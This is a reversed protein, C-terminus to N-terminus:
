INAAPRLKGGELLPAPVALGAQLESSMNVPAARNPRSRTARQSEAVSNAHVKSKKPSSDKKGAKKLAKLAPIAEKRALKAAKKAQKFAKRAQRQEMKLTRWHRRAAKMLKETAAARAILENGQLKKAQPSAKSRKTKM